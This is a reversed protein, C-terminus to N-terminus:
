KKKKQEDIMFRADLYLMSDAAIGKQKAKEAVTAYWDPNGRIAMMMKAVDPPITKAFAPSLGKPKEKEAIQPLAPAAQLQAYVQEIFGWGFEDLNADTCYIVVVDHALAQRLADAEIVKRQAGGFPHWDRNYYFFDTQSYVTGNFRGPDHTWFYSDGIALLSPKETSKAEEFHYVPYAMPFGEPEFLLNMGRGVDSDVLNVSDGFVIRDVVLPALVTGRLHGLRRSVSDAVFTAAYTSWHIGCKPFLPYRSTQRWQEFWNRGDIFEIGRKRFQAVYTDYNRITKRKRLEPEERIFSNFFSAKGPAMVILLTTGRAALKQQVELLMGAQRKIKEEGVFDKGTWADIYTQDFLYGEKGVIVANTYSHNWWSYGIQNHLRLLTNRYGFNQNLWEGKQQQFSGAFWGTDTFEPNEAVRPSYGDLEREESLHLWRQLGPLSLLLFLLIALLRLLRKPPAQANESKM